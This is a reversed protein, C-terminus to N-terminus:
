RVRRRRNRRRSRRPESPPPRDTLERRLWEGVKKPKVDEDEDAKKAKTARKQLEDAEGLYM